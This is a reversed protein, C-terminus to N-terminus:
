SRTSVHCLMDLTQETKTRNNLICCLLWKADSDRLLM